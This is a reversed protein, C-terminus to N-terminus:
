FLFLLYTRAFIIMQTYLFSRRYNFPKDIKFSIAEWKQKRFVSAIDYAIVIRALGEGSKIRPSLHLLNNPAKTNALSKYKSM